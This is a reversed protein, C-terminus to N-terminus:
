SLWIGYAFTALCALILLMVALTGAVFWVAGLALALAAAGFTEALPFGPGFGLGREGRPRSGENRMKWGYRGRRSQEFASAM